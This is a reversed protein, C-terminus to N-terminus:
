RFLDLEDLLSLLATEDSVKSEPDSHQVFHHIVEKEFVTRPDFDHVLIRNGIQKLNRFDLGGPLSLNLAEKGIANYAAVLERARVKKAAECGLVSILRDEAEDETLQPFEVDLAMRSIMPLTLPHDEDYELNNTLFVYCMPHRFVEGEATMLSGKRNFDLIDHFRSMEGIPMTAMEGIELVGGTMFWAVFPSLVRKYALTMGSTDQSELKTKLSSLVAKAKGEIRDIVTSPSDPEGSEGICEWAYAPDFKAEVLSPLELAEIAIELADRGQTDSNLATNVANEEATFTPLTGGVLYPVWTDLLQDFRTSKNTVVNYFPLGNNAAFQEATESKGAAAPGTIQFVRVKLDGSDNETKKSGEYIYIENDGYVHADRVKPVRAIQDPTLNKKYSRVEESDLIFPVIADRKRSKPAAVTGSSSPFTQFAGYLVKTPGKIKKDLVPLSLETGDVPGTMALALAEFNTLDFEFNPLSSEDIGAIIHNVVDDRHKKFSKNQAEESHLYAFWVAPAIQAIDKLKSISNGMSMNSVSAIAKKPSIELRAIFNSGLDHEVFTTETGKADVRNGIAFASDKGEAMLAFGKLAEWLPASHQQQSMTVTGDSLLIEIDRSEWMHNTMM